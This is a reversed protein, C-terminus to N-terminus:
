ETGSRLMWVCRSLNLWMQILCTIIPMLPLLLCWQTSLFSLRLRVILFLNLLLDAEDGRDIDFRAGSALVTQVLCGGVWHIIVLGASRAVWTLSKRQLLQKPLVAWFGLKSILVTAPERAAYGLCLLVWLESLLELQLVVVDRKALYRLMLTCGELSMDLLFLFSVWADQLGLFLLSYALIARRALKYVHCVQERCLPSM